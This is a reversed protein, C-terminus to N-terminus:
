GMVCKVCCEEGTTSTYTRANPHRDCVFPKVVGYLRLQQDAYEQLIKGEAERNVLALFKKMRQRKANEITKQRFFEEAEKSM